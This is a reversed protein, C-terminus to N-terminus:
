EPEPHNVAQAAPLWVSFTSGEPGSNVNIQGGHAQTIGHAVSLGLGNGSGKERTTFFPEFIKALNEPAIGQGTDSVRINIGPTGDSAAEDNTSVHLIGGNKMAQFANIVLNMLLQHLQTTDILVATNTANFEAKTKIGRPRNMAALALTERVVQAVDTTVQSTTGQRSFLLIKEILRRGREAAHFIAEARTRMLSGPLSERVLLEAYGKIPTLLNNFEHAIGGALTGITELRQNDRLHQALQARDAELKKEHSIDRVICTLFQPQQHEDRVLWSRISVPFVHGDFHIYEKEYVDSYGRVMVQNAVINAEMTRWKMPTIQQFAPRGTAELSYGIMDLYARNATLLRGDLSFIVLGDRSSEFLQRYRAEARQLRREAGERRAIDDLLTERMYNIATEVRDLEDPEQGANRRRKLALPRDLTSLALQRTYDAITGLHRTLLQHVITLIFISVIFTKLAQGVLINAARDLLRAYVEALSSHVTLTGIPYSQSPQQPHHFTLPYHRVLYGGGNETTPYQGYQYRQGQDTVLVVSVVTELQMMGSLLLRIQGENLAWVSNALPDITTKEIISFREEIATVDQQYDSWLQWATLLLTVASSVLLIYGLLRLRLQRGPHATKDTSRM